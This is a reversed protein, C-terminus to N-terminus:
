GPDDRGRATPTAADSLGTEAEQEESVVPWRCDDMPANNEVSVSFGHHEVLKVWALTPGFDRYHERVLALASQKVEERIKRNSERGRNGHILGSAGHKRCEWVLNHVQRMSVGIRRAAEKKKNHGEVYLRIVESRDQEKRSMLIMEAKM